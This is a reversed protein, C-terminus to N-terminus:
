DTLRKETLALLPKLKEADLECSQSLIGRSVLKTMLPKGGTESLLSEALRTAGHLKAWQVAHFLLEHTATLPRVQEPTETTPLARYERTAKRSAAVLDLRLHPKASTKTSPIIAATVFAELNGDVILGFGAYPQKYEDKRTNLAHLVKGLDHAVLASQTDKPYTTRALELAQHNHEAKM